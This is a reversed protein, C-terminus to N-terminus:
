VGLFRKIGESYTSGSYIKKAFEFSKLRMESYKDTDMSLINKLLLVVTDSKYDDLLFGTSGDTIDADTGGINNCIVPTGLSLSESVKTSYGALAYREKKRLLVTFDSERVENVVTEHSVRGHCYIGIRKLETDKWLKKVDRDDVGFLHFSVAIEPRNITELADFIPVLLDKTGPSGAYVLRVPTGLSHICEYVGKFNSDIIPPVRFSPIERDTYYKYFYKSIAIIGNTKKDLFRIRRDVSKAFLYLSLRSIPPVEYWETADIFVEIQAKKSFKIVKKSLAYTENYLVVKQPAFEKVCKRFFSFACKAFYLEAISKVSNYGRISQHMDIKDINDGDLVTAYGTLYSAMVVRTNESLVSKAVNFIRIYSSSNEDGFRGIYLITKLL